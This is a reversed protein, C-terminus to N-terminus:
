VLLGARKAFLYFIESEPSLTEAKWTLNGNDSVVWHGPANSFPWAPFSFNVEIIQAKGNLFLIDYAAAELNLSLSAQHATVVVEDPIKSPDWDTCEQGGSRFDNPRNMMQKAVIKPGLTIVRFVSDLGAQFDQFYAERQFSFTKPNLFLKALSSRIKRKRFALSSGQLEWGSHVESRFVAKIIRHAHRPDEVLTVDNSGFGSPLKHVLPYSAQDCFSHADNEYFFVNSTPTPIGGAEFAYKQAVKDQILPAESSSPYTPIGKTLALAPILRKVLATQEPDPSLRWLFGDADSCQQIIDQDFVNVLRVEFGHHAALNTWCDSFSQHVKGYPMEKHDPQIAILRPM